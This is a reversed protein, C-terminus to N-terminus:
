PGSQLCQAVVAGARCRLPVKGLWIGYTHPHVQVMEMLLIFVVETSEEVQNEETIQREREPTMGEKPGRQEKIAVSLRMPLGVGPHYPEM